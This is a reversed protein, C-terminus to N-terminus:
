PVGSDHPARRGLDYLAAPYQLASPDPVALQFLSQKRQPILKVETMKILSLRWEKEKM